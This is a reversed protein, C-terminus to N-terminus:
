LAGLVLLWGAPLRRCLIVLLGAFAYTNLIDGYWVLYAHLFGLVLLAAHRRLLIALPSGAGERSGLIGIGAGFLLSLIGIMKDEFLLDGALWVAASPQAGGAFTSDQFARLPMSFNRINMVLIGLIAIGRLVDLTEIRSEKAQSDSVLSSAGSTMARDYARSAGAQM